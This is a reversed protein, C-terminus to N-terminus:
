AAAPPFTTKGCRCQSAQPSGRYWVRTRCAPEPCTWKRDLQAIREVAERVETISPDSQGAHADPNLAAAVDADLGDLLARLQEYTPKSLTKLARRVGAMVEGIERHDNKVGRRFPLPAQLAEAIEQLLHELAKRGKMAAGERDGADLAATADLLRQGPRYGAMRPGGDFDWSTFQIKKWGPALRNLWEFFLRDHTLVIVQRHDFDNALLRALHARHESDFSNVVDDLVLTDLRENFTEAMALFLAVALSNLHSESLVGHPPKQRVGHFSVALEVGKEGWPEIVVDTLDEGPHLKTYIDAARISIQDLVAKLYTHQHRQYESFVADALEFASRAQEVVVAQHRWRRAQDLLGGLEILTRERDSAAPPVAAGVASTGAEGWHSVGHMFDGPAALNIPEHRELAARLAPAPSAPPEPLDVGLRVARDRFQRAQSEVSELKNATHRVSDTLLDFEAAAAQLEGLVARVQEQLLTLDVPQGCLPCANASDVETLHSSAAQFLRLRARDASASSSIAANWRELDQTELEEPHWARMETALSAKTAGSTQAATSLMAWWEPSLADDLSSPVAIHADRCRNAIGVFIGDEDVPSVSTALAASTARHQADENDATRRLENRTTQLDLRLGDVGALGLIDALAKWKEGKTREVFATLARGRLLFTERGVDLVRPVVEGRLTRTGGLDTTTEVTVSTGVTSAAGVHRLAAQRGEARLFDVEGTFYWELADAVTSKGTANDGYLVASVGAPLNVTLEDRVGRFARMEVRTVREGM